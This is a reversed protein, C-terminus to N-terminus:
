IKLWLAIKNNVENRNTYNVVIERLKEGRLLPAEKDYKFIQVKM